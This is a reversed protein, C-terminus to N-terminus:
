VIQNEFKKEYETVRQTLDSRTAIPRSQYSAWAGVQSGRPRTAFYADSELESIKNVGGVIRVQRRLSKWHLCAAAKKTALLEQGKRGEYNTFFVFGRQDLEKLLVVRATPTQDKKVTALTMANPLPLEASVADNFWKHFQDFPNPELDTEMLKSQTYEKRLSSSIVSM